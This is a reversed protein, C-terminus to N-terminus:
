SSPKHAKFGRYIWMSLWWVIYMGVPVVFMVLLLDKAHSQRISKTHKAETSLFDDSMATVHQEAIEQLTDLDYKNSCYYLYYTHLGVQKRKIVAPRPYFVSKDGFCSESWRSLLQPKEGPSASFDFRSYWNEDTYERYLLYSFVAVWVVSVLILVRKLGTTWNM